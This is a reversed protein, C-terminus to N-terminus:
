EKAFIEGVIQIEKSGNLAEEILADKVCEEDGKIEESSNIEVSISIRYTKIARKRM